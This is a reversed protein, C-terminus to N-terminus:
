CHGPHAPTQHAIAQDCPDSGPLLMGATRGGLLLLLLAGVSASRSFLLQAYSLCVSTALTKVPSEGRAGQAEVADIAATLGM